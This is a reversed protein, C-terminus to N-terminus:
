GPLHGEAREWAGRRPVGGRSGGVEAAQGDVQIICRKLVSGMEGGVPALVRAAKLKVSRFAVTGRAAANLRALSPDATRYWTHPEVERKVCSSSRTEISPPVTEM